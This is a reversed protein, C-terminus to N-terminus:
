LNIGEPTRFLYQFNFTVIGYGFQSSIGPHSLSSQNVGVSAQFTFPHSSHPAFNLDVSGKHLGGNWTASFGVPNEIFWGSQNAIILPLCRNAFQRDTTDMWDRRAPARHIAMCPSPHLEYAIIANTSRSESAIAKM